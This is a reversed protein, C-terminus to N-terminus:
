MFERYFLLHPLEIGLSFLNCALHRLFRHEIALLPFLSREQGFQSSWGGRWHIGSAKSPTFHVTHSASWEGGHPTSTSAAGGSIDDACPAQALVSVVTDRLKERFVLLFIKWIIQFYKIFSQKWSQLASYYKLHQCINLQYLFERGRITGLSESSKSINFVQLIEAMPIHKNDM